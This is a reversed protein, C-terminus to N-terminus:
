VIFPAGPYGPKVDRTKALVDAASIVRRPKHRCGAGLGASEGFGALFDVDFTHGPWHRDGDLTNKRRAAPVSIEKNLGRAVKHDKTRALTHDGVRIVKVLLCNGQGCIYRGVIVKNIVGANELQQFGEHAATDRDSASAFLAAFFDSLEDSM